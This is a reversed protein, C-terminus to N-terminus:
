LEGFYMVKQQVVMIIIVMITCGYYYYTRTLDLLFSRVNVTHFTCSRFRCDFYFSRMEYYNLFFNNVM